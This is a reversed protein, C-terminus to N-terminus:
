GWGGKPPKLAQANENDHTLWTGKLPNLPIKIYLITQIKLFVASKNQM